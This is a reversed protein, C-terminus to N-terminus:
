YLKKFHFVSPSPKNGEETEGNEKGSADKEGKGGAEPSDTQANAADAQGAGAGQTDERSQGECKEVLKIAVSVAREIVAEEIHDVTDDASHSVDTGGLVATMTTAKVGARAFSAADTGGAFVPISGTKAKYGMSRSLRSLNEAFGGDLDQTGNVDRRLFQICDAHYLSDFNLVMTSESLFEPHAGCWAASGRLGSEEGDFSAYVLRTHKLPEGCKSKWDFYRAIQVLLASSVLNDGAGPSGKGTDLIRGLKLVLPVAASLVALYVLFPVAPVNVLWSKEAVETVLQAATEILLLAFCGVPIGIHILRAARDSKPIAPIPASDHHASFIVTREVNGEPEQRATVNVGQVTKGIRKLVPRMWVIERLAYFLYLSVALLAASPLGIWLLVLATIYVPAALHFPRLADAAALPFTEKEAQPCFRSLNHRIDEATQNLADSGSLRPGHADIWIKTLSLCERALTGAKLTIVEKAKKKETGGMLGPKAKKKGFFPIRM